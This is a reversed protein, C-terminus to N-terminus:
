SPALHVLSHELFDLVEVTQGLKDHVCMLWDSWDSLLPVHQIVHEATCMTAPSEANVHTNDLL